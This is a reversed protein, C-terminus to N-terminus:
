RSDHITYRTYQADADCVLLSLIANLIHIVLNFIHYGTVNLGHIRYNLAFTLYGIYRLKFTDYGLIANNFAKAKSPEIFFNLDKIIPNEVIIPIDDIQFHAHFTNAYALLGVIAILFLHFIPNRFLNGRSVKGM